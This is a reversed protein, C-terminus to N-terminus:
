GPQPVSLASYATLGTAFLEGGPLQSQINVRRVDTQLEPKYAVIEGQSYSVGIVKGGRTRSLALERQVM